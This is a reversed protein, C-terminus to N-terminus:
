QAAAVRHDHMAELFAAYNPHEKRLKEVGDKVWQPTTPDTLIEKVTRRETM